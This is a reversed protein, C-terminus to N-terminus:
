TYRCNGALSVCGFPIVALLAPACLLRGLNGCVSSFRRCGVSWLAVGRLLMLPSAKCLGVDFGRPAAPDAPQAQLLDITRRTPSVALSVGAPVAGLPVSPPQQPRSPSDFDGGPHMRGVTSATVAAAGM